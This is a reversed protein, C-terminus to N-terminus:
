VSVIGSVQVANVAGALFCSFSINPAIRNARQAFPVDEVNPATVTIKRTGDILGNTVGLDIAAKVAALLVSTGKNTYPIKSANVLEQYINSQITTELWDAGITIDIYQGSVMTGMQTIDKGGVTQYINGNKGKIGAVPLGVIISRANDSIEDASIGRLTKYAWNNSGPTQPLQGGMWAAEIGKNASAPSYSLFTRDYSKSKLISLVDTDVSTAIDSDSSAAGYIKKLSEVAAALQLIDEKDNSCLIIGYFTNNEAIISNLDDAIGHNAVSHALALNVDANISTSFGAGSVKATLILTTTGTAIVAADSDANILALLGAVIESVTADADATYEYNVADITVKYLHDNVATPTIIDIQKVSATRLGVLFEAPTIEQEYLELAYKYEPSSTSFGDDLMSAPDTYVHVNDEWGPESPGIILPISFSEQAVAKTILSINIKILTDIVSM